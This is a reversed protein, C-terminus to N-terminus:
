LITFSPLMSHRDVSSSICLINFMPCLIVAILPNMTHIVAVTFLLYMFGGRTSYFRSKGKGGIVVLILGKM